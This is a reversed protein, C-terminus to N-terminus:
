VAAQDVHAIAEAMGMRFAMAASPLPRSQDDYVDGGDVQYEWAFHAPGLPLISVRVFCDRYALYETVGLLEPADSGTQKGSRM